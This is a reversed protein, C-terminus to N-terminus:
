GVQFKWNPSNKGHVKKHLTKCFSIKSAVKEFSSTWTDIGSNIQQTHIESNEGFFTIIEDTIGIFYTIAKKYKYKTFLSTM